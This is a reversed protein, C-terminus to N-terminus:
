LGVFSVFWSFLTHILDFPGKSMAGGMTGCFWERLFFLPSGHKIREKRYLGASRMKLRGKKRKQDDKIQDCSSWEHFIYCGRMGGRDVVLSPSFQSHTLSHTATFYISLGTIYM